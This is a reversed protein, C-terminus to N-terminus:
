TPIIFNKALESIAQKQDESGIQYCCIINALRDDECFFYATPLNLATAILEITKFPPEHVGSEYRSMRASSCSEDLGIMVGLKDQPIGFRLRAERLRKSFLSTKPSANKSM